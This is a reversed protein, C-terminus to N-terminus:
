TGGFSRNKCSDCPTVDWFAGNKLLFGVKQESNETEEKRSSSVVIFHITLINLSFDFRTEHLKKALIIFPNRTEGMYNYVTLWKIMLQALLGDM